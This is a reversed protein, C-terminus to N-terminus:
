YNPLGRICMRMDEFIHHFYDAHEVSMFSGPHNHAQRLRNQMGRISQEIDRPHKNTRLDSIFNQIDQRLGQAERDEPHDIADQINYKLADFQKLFPEYEPNM